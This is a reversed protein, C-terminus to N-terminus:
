LTRRNGREHFFGKEGNCSLSGGRGIEKGRGLRYNERLINNERERKTVQKPVHVIREQIQIEPVEVIKEVYEM